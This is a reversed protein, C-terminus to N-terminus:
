TASSPTFAPGTAGDWTLEIMGNQIENNRFDPHKLATVIATGTLNAATAEGTQLPWTIVLTDSDGLAPPTDAADTYYELSVTGADALDAAIKTIYGSSALTSTDLVDLRQEGIVIAVVDATISTFTFTAGNGTDAM